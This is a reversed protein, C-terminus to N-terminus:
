LIQQEKDGVDEPKSEPLKSKPETEGSYISVLDKIKTVIGANNNVTIFREGLREKWYETTDSRSYYRVPYIVFVNWKEQAKDLIEKDTFSIGRKGTIEEMASEPYRALGPEDTIIILLGKQKRKEWADTKVCESAFWPILLASEGENGGGHGELYTRTLWMDLEEDGSEFQGIQLPYRDYVHDGFGMFLLSADKVGNDIIGGMLNPLGTKILDHPISGMSGTVDMGIIIPFTEPHEKSDRAERSSILRSDMSKHVKREKQQVFIKEPPATSYNNATSNITRNEISYSTHGM